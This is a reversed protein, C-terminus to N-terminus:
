QQLCYVRASEFDCSLDSGPTDFFLASTHAAQGAGGQGQTSTWDDCSTASVSPLDPGAAGGWVAVSGHYDGRTDLNIPALLDAGDLLDGASEVVAVGDLRVWREGDQFRSAASQGSTSLLARFTGSLGEADAEAQCLQDAGDIGPGPVFDTRSVFALRGSAPEVERSIANDVGLCYLRGQIGCGTGNGATWLLSGASPVGSRFLEGADVVTWDSCSTYTGSAYHTGDGDTGTFVWVDGTGLDDGKEDVRPPYFIEGQVLSVVSAAFPLGDTRIWGAATTPIRDRANASSTSLWAMYEGELGAEGARQACIDDAEQLGGLDAAHSTSTVFVYNEFIGVADMGSDAEAASGDGSGGDRLFEGADHVVV